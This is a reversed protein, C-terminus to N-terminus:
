NTNTIGPAEVEVCTEHLKQSTPYPLMSKSQIHSRQNGVVGPQNRVSGMGDM